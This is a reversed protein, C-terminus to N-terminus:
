AFNFFGTTARREDAAGDGTGEIRGVGEGEGRTTDVGRCVYSAGENTDTFVGMSRSAFLSSWSRNMGGSALEEDGDVRSDDGVVGASKSAVGWELDGGSGM